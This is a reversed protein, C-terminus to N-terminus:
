ANLFEEVFGADTSIDDLEISLTEIKHTLWLQFWNRNFGASRIMDQQKDETLGDFTLPQAGTIEAVLRSGIPEVELISQVELYPYWRKVEEVHM